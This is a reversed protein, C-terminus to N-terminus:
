KLSFAKAIAAMAEGLEQIREDDLHHAIDSATLGYIVEGLHNTLVAAVTVVGPYLAERDIAYGTKEAARVEAIYTDADIEGGWRLDPFRKQIEDDSLGLHAAYARGLAGAMFPLRQKIEMDLRIARSATARELLTMRGDHAQWIGVLCNSETALRNLEGRIDNVISQEFLPSSLEKLGAGLKYTKSLSDFDVMTELVLTRLINFATSPNVQADRAIANVGLPRNEAALLRLIRFAQAVAGVVKVAKEQRATENM